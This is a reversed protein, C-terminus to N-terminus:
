PEKASLPLLGKTLCTEVFICMMKHGREAEDKTAYRKQIDIGGFFTSFISRDDTESIELLKELVEDSAFVMTEYLMVNDNGIEKSIHALGLFVTSIHIDGFYDNGIHRGAREQWVLWKLYDPELIPNGQGDLIYHLNM